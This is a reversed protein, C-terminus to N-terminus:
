PAHSRLSSNRLGSLRRATGRSARVMRARGLAQVAFLRLLCLSDQAALNDRSGVLERSRFQEAIHLSNLTNMSLEKSEYISKHLPLSTVAHVNRTTTAPPALCALQKRRRYCSGTWLAPLRRVEGRVSPSQLIILSSAPRPRTLYGNHILESVLPKAILETVGTVM